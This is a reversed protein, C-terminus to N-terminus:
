RSQAADGSTDIFVDRVTFVDDGALIGSRGLIRGREWNSLGLEPRDWAWQGDVWRTFGDGVYPADVQEYFRDFRERDTTIISAVFRPSYTNILTVAEDDGRACVISVEPTVEWEWERRLDDVPIVDIRPEVVEGDARQVAVREDFLDPPVDHESGAAVHLRANPDREAIADIALPVLERARRGAIVITNLTNCVKRDLSHVIANRVSAEPADETLYMWAGGTGHLSVPIGSQAAISGLLSTTPGSGRAIALRVQSMTFLAHAAAHSPSRILAVAGDPLGAASLAPAVATAEIAEATRLADSGIRMVSVNGGRLVGVGDAFVNPRGEFVFAVIGLPARRREITWTDTVRREVVEGRRSPAKAWGMLGDIMGERMKASAVLRTTSRGAEQARAVDTANAEAVSGWLADDALREAFTRFFQSLQEDTVDATARFAADAGAVTTRVLEDVAAPVVLLDGTAQVALVRDGAEIEPM